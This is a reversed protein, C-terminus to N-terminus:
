RPFPGPRQPKADWRHLTATPPPSEAATELDSVLPEVADDNIPHPVSLWLRRGWLLLADAQARPRWVM